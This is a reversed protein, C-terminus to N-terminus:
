KRRLLLFAVVAIAAIIAITSGALYTDTMPAPTADPPPTSPIETEVVGVYASAHSGWYSESGLFSALVMYQGPVEPEWMLAYNGDTDSTVRGIEYFNGNPDFTELVVEVGVADMPMPKQMYLYEMWGSMSEDSVVPVGDPFRLQRNSDRAGPSQDTVTGTIM